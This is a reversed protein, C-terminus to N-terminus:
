RPVVAFTKADWRGYSPSVEVDAAKLRKRVLADARAVAETNIGGQIEGKIRDLPPTKRSTVFFIHLGEPTLIPDSVQGIPQTRSAHALAPVLDDIANCGLDGGRKAFTEDISLERAVAAFAEGEDLRDKVERADEESSVVIDKTCPKVYDSKHEAYFEAPTVGAILVRRLAVVNTAREVLQEQYDRDFAALIKNDGTAYAAEIRGDHRDAKTVEIRRRRVEREVAVTWIRSTLAKATLAVRFQEESGVRSGFRRELNSTYLTNSRLADVESEFDTSTIRTGDVRAAIDEGCSLATIAIATV